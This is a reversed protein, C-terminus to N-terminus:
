LLRIAFWIDGDVDGPVSTPDKSRNRCLHAQRTSTLIVTTTMTLDPPLGNDHREQKKASDVGLNSADGGDTHSLLHIRLQTYVSPTIGWRSTKGTRSM